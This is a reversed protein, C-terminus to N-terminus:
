GKYETNYGHNEKPRLDNPYNMDTQIDLIIKQIIKFTEYPNSIDYLITVKSNAQNSMVVNSGQIYIDGVNLIRDIIGVKLSVDKIEKYYINKYDIGIFGSSVLIRKDTVVYDTNKWRKFSTLCNSIWMWVPFLHLAFFVIIFLGMKEFAGSAVLTTIIFTDILLWFIGFPALTLISNLIYASKVPKGKWLIKEGNMLMNSIDIESNQNIYEKEIKNYKM